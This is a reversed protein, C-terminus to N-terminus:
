AGAPLPSRSEAVQEMWKVGQEWSPLEAIENRVAELNARYSNDSLVTLVADRVLEPTIDSPMIIRGLGSAAARGANIPQDSFLPVLVMPLGADVSAILTGAGAHTIIADCRALLKSHPIYEAVRVNEPLAGLSAPDRGRGIVLILTLQENALADIFVRLLDDRDARTGLSAHVVPGAPLDDMWEPLDEEGSENFILPKIRRATPLMTAGPDRLSPPFPVLSLYRYLSEMGPDAPLGRSVRWDNLRPSLSQRVSDLEGSSYEEVAVHPIGLEEGAFYPAYEIHGRVLLDPEWTRCLDLLGPLDAEVRIGAFVEHRVFDSDATNRAPMPANPFRQQLLLGPNGGTSLLPFELHDLTERVQEGTVFATEHSAARAAGALGLMPHLSGFGPGCCFLMRV